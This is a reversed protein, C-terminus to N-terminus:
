HDPVTLQISREVTHRMVEIIFDPLDKLSSRCPEFTCSVMQWLYSIEM